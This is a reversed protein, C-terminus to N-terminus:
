KESSFIRGSRLTMDHDASFNMPELFLFRMGKEHGGSKYGRINM